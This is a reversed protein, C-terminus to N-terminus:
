SEINKPLLFIVYFQRRFHNTCNAERMIAGDEFVVVLLWAKLSFGGLKSAFSMSSYFIEVVQPFDLGRLNPLLKGTFIAVTAVLDKAASWKCM